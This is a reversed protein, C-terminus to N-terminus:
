WNIPPCCSSYDQGPEGLTDMTEYITIRRYLADINPFKEENYWNRVHKNSTFWIHTSTFPVDGGKIEVNGGYRDLLNLLESYPVGGYFDNFIVCPQGDYKPWWKGSAAMKEYVDGKRTAEEMARRSKGTGSAGVYVYVEPRPRELAPPPRLIERLAQFGRFYRVYQEPYEQAVEALRKGAKILSTASELDSRKGPSPISGFEEYVGDKSCYERNKSANCRAPELHANSGILKKCSEFSRTGTFSVYGQFHETGNAGKELGICAYRVRTADVCLAYLREYDADRPNNLTFAVHRLKKQAKRPVSSTGAM